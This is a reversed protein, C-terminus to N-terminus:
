LLTITKTVGNVRIKLGTNTNDERWVDGDAPSTPASGQPLKFSSATTTPTTFTLSGQLIVKGTGSTQINLDVNTDSGTAIITPGSGTANNAIQIYNVASGFPVFEILKFGNFDDIHGFNAFRPATLTKNTLTDTTAKGVLTDTADPYTITRDNTHSATLTLTKGTTAGVLEWTLLKTNDAADGIRVKGTGKGTLLLATNTDDGSASIKPANGTAANTVTIDNVASTTAPTRIIENSNTDLISTTIKPTTLVALTSLVLSGTGTRSTVGIFHLQWSATGTGSTLICEVRVATGGAISQGFANGGSSNVTITGTSLNIIDFYQGLVMTSAVPMVVTQTTTGTFYQQQTSAVTLTTTGAATATTTYGPIFSNASENANADRAALTSATAASAVGTGTPLGTIVPTTLPMSTWTGTPTYSGGLELITDAADRVTKARNTSALGTFTLLGTQGSISLSAASGTTNQNLTPFTCNTLTGSSPTGLAGGSVLLTADSDPLTFTKEATTPGTFKTFGNGTGGYTSAIVQTLAASGDFSSGYIARATALTTATTANGSLAATVTVFTPSAGTKVSQDFWDAITPNGSIKLTRAANVLDLTLTRGATLATSSTAALTVDFAASTDRIALATLGTISGSTGTLATFTGAAPTSGGIAGPSPFSTVDASGDFSSGGITRPTALATATAANGSTNVALIGTSANYTVEGDTTMVQNGTQSRALVLWCTADDAADVVTVTAANGTIDAAIANTCAIDTAWLKTVRSGTSGISGTLTLNNTGLALDGGSVTFGGTATAVTINATGDFSVGGITRPTALATATSANGTTSGSSGSVNGTVNGTLNGVVDGTVNGELSAVLTGVAYGTGGTNVTTTPESQLGTFLKFKGDNADRFLGTYKAGSSTYLGYFGIDLADSSSNGTALKILPDEVALTDTNITTVTGSVTLDGDVTLNGTVQGTAMTATGTFTPSALPAKLNLATQLDTQNALTGTISGWAPAAAAVATTVFATTALQTTNTGGAATPATPTGTFAPSALPAKLALLTDAASVSYFDTGAELDLLARMAAYNAATVLSQANASPTLGAWTTLDADYAQVDTGPTLGLTTRVQAQTADDLLTFAFDTVTKAAVNGSSSRGLVTNTVLDVVSFTDSGSGVPVSNNAITLAAFNTLTADLLQADTIGYGALTTPKATLSAFTGDFGSATSTLEFGTGAANVRVNKLENGSLTLGAISTLNANTPQYSGGSIAMSLDAVTTKKSRSGAAESLDVIYLLDTQAIAAGALLTLDSVQRNSM